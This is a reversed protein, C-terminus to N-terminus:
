EGQKWFDQRGRRDSAVYMDDTQNKKFIYIDMILRKNYVM